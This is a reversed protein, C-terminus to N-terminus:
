RGTEGGSRQRAQRRAKELRDAVVPELASNLLENVLPTPTYYSGTTKRESGAATNLKFTAADLNMQPHLELLSEYVSGLEESDLNRYDVPRRVSNEVTFALARVADLLDHNAIEADDLDPTAWQLFPLQGLRAAGAAYGERLMSFFACRGTVILIRGAGCTPQWSVCGICLITSKMSSVSPTPLAPCCCCTETRPWLLFIFRYVQRRLQQYLDQTTLKGSRLRERLAKNDRHALVGHGLAEIAEQM